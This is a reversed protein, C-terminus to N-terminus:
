EDAQNFFLDQGESSGERIRIYRRNYEFMQQIKATTLMLIFVM